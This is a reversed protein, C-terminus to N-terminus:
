EGGFLRGDGERDGQQEPIKEYAPELAVCQTRRDPGIVQWEPKDEQNDADHHPIVRAIGIEGLVTEIDTGQPVIGQTLEM